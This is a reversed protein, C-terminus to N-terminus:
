QTVQQFNKTDGITGSDANMVPTSDSTVNITAGIAAIQFKVEIRLSQRAELSVEIKFDSFGSKTATIEYLGRNLNLFQFNEKNDSFMRRPTNKVLSKARVTSGPVAGFNSDQTLGVLSGFTSQANTSGPIALLILLLFYFIAKMM